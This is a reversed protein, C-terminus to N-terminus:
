PKAKKLFGSPFGEPAGLTSAFRTRYRDRNYCLLTTKQTSPSYSDFDARKVSTSADLYSSFFEQSLATSLHNDHACIYTLSSMHAFHKLTNCDFAIQNGAVNLEKLTKNKCLAELGQATIKNSSLCLNTLSQNSAFGSIADDDLQCEYLNLIQLRPHRALAQAGIAGIENHSLQLEILSDNRSFFEAGIEDIFCHSLDLVQIVHNMALSQLCEGQLYNSALNLSIVSTNHSFFVSVGTGSVECNSVNLELLTDSLALAELGKDGIPNNHLALRKLNMIALVSAGAATIVNPSEDYGSLINSFDLAELTTVVALAQVGTDTISNYSLNVTKIEPHAKLVPVLEKVESDTLRQGCVDSSLNLAEGSFQGRKISELIDRFASM